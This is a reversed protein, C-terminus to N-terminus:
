SPDPQLPFPALIYHWARHYEVHARPRGPADFPETLTTPLPVDWTTQYLAHNPARTAHKMLRGTDQVRQGPADTNFYMIDHPNVLSVVLAWPKADDNLPRGHKRMWTM